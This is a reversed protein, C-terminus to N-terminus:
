DALEEDIAALVSQPGFRVMELFSRMTEIVEGRATQYDGSAAFFWAAEMIGPKMELSESLYTGSVQM